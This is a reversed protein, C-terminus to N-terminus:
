AHALEEVLLDVAAEVQPSLGSGSSTDQVEIGYVSIHGPLTGLARALEVVEVLGISHSSGGWSRPYVQGDTFRHIMGVPAGSRVADVLVVEDFAAMHEVMEVAGDGAAMAWPSGLREILLPGAGDDHRLVNGFGVVLRSM